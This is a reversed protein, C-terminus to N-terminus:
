SNEKQLCWIPSCCRHLHDVHLPPLDSCDVMTTPNIYILLKETKINGKIDIMYTHPKAYSAFSLISTRETSYDNQAMKKTKM